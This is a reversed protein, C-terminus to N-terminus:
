VHKSKYYHIPNQAISITAKNDYYLRMPDQVKVKMDTLVVKLWLLECVKHAMALLEAEVSSQAVVLQKKSRWTVLNKGLLMCYGITSRKDILSRAWDADTYAKLQLDVHNHYM